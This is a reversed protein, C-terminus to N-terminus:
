YNKGFVSKRFFTILKERRKKMKLQEPILDSQNVSLVSMKYEIHSAFTNNLYWAYMVGMLLGPPTFGEEGNVLRTFHLESQQVMRALILYDRIEKEDFFSKRDTAKRLYLHFINGPTYDAVQVKKVEKTEAYNGLLAQGVTILFSIELNRKVVFRDQRIKVMGDKPDYYSFVNDWRQDRRWAEDAICMIGKINELHSVMVDKHTWVIDLLQQKVEDDSLEFEKNCRNEIVIDAFKEELKRFRVSPISM